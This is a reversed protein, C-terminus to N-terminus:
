CGNQVDSSIAKAQEALADEIYVIPKDFLKANERKNM